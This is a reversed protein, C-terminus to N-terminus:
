YQCSGMGKYEIHFTGKPKIRVVWLRNVGKDQEIFYDKNEKLERHKIPISIGFIKKHTQIIKM